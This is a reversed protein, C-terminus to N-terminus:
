RREVRVQERLMPLEDEHRAVIGLAKRVRRESPDTLARQLLAAEMSVFFPSGLAEAIKAMEAVRELDKM